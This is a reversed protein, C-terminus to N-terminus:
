NIRCFSGLKTYKNELLMNHIMQMEEDSSVGSLSMVRNQSVKHHCYSQGIGTLVEGFTTKEEPFVQKAVLWMAMASREDTFNDPLYLSKLNRALYVVIDRSLIYHEDSLIGIHEELYGTPKSLRLRDARFVSTHYSSSHEFSEMEQLVLAINIFVNDDAVLMFSFIECASLAMKMGSLTDNFINNKAVTQLSSGIFIDGYHKQELHMHRLCRSSCPVKSTRWYSRKQTAVLRNNTLLFFIKVKTKLKGIDGWTRRIVKRREANMFNSRILLTLSVTQAPLNLSNNLIIPSRKLVKVNDTVSVVDSVSVKQKEAVARCLRCALSNINTELAQCFQKSPPIQRWAHLLNYKGDDNGYDLLSIALDKLSTFDDFHVFSEPSPAFTEVTKRSVGYFVPVTGAIFADYLKESILAGHDYGQLALTFKYNKLVAIKEQWYPYTGKEFPWEVNNLCRGLSAVDIYYMLDIIIQDRKRRCNRSVYSVVPNKPAFSDAFVDRFYMNLSCAGFFHFRYLNFPVDASEYDYTSVIDLQQFVDTGSWLDPRGGFPDLIDEESFGVWIQKNLVKKKYVASTVPPVASSSGGYSWDLTFLIADYRENEQQWEINESYFKEGRRIEKPFIYRCRTLCNGVQRNSFQGHVYPVNSPVFISIEENNTKLNGYSTEIHFKTCKNSSFYCAKQNLAHLRKINKKTGDWQEAQSTFGFNHCPFLQACGDVTKNNQVAYREPMGNEDKNRLFDFFYEESCFANEVRACDAILLLTFCFTLFISWNKTNVRVSTHM